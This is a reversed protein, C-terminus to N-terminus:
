SRITEIELYINLFDTKPKFQSLLGRSIWPKSRIKREKRSANRKPAFQDVIESFTALFSDALENVPTTDFRLCQVVESM